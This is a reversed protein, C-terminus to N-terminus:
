WTQVLFLSEDIWCEVDCELEHWDTFEYGLCVQSRDGIHPRGGFRYRSCDNRCDTTSMSFDYGIECMEQTRCKQPNYSPLSTIHKHALIHALMIHCAFLPCPVFLLFLYFTTDINALAGTSYVKAEIKTAKNSVLNSRRNM